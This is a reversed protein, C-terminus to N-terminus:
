PLGLLMLSNRYKRYLTRGGSAYFVSGSLQGYTQYIPYFAMITIAFFAGSFNKGGMLYISKAAQVAISVPFTLPLLTSCPFM